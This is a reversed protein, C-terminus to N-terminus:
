QTEQVKLGSGIWEVHKKQGYTAIEKETLELLIEARSPVSFQHYAFLIVFHWPECQKTQIDYIDMAKVNWHREKQANEEEATWNQVSQPSASENIDEFAAASLTAGSLAKRYRRSVANVAL